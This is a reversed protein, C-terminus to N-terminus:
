PLESDNVAPGFEGYNVRPYLCFYGGDGNWDRMEVPDNPQYERGMWQALFSDDAINSVDAKIIREIM